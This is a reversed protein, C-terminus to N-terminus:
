TREITALWAKPGGPSMRAPTEVAEFRTPEIQKAKWGEQFADRIEQHTVRRPGM